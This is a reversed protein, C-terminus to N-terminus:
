SGYGNRILAVKNECGRGVAQEWRTREAASVRARQLGAGIAAYTADDAEWDTVGHRRAVDGLGSEFGALESSEGAYAATFDRVDDRYAEKKEESKSSSGSSRCPSSLSKSSSESSYYFSCGLPTLALVAILLTKTMSTM